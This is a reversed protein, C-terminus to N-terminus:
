PAAKRRVPIFIEVASGPKGPDFEENYREFFHGEDQVFSSSPLLRGHIEAFGEGLRNLPYVFRAYKGAPLTLTSMGDPIREARAVSVAAMYHLVPSAGPEYRMVGYSVRPELTNAIEDIRAVFRPWLAPIEPSMPRTKIALGVVTLSDRDFTQITM